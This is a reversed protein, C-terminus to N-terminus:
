LDFINRLFWWLIYLVAYAYAIWRTAFHRRVWQTYDSSPAIYTTALLLLYPILLAGFYNYSFAKLPHGHLLNYIMRQTGCGPCKFGTLALMVCKPAWQTTSPNFRYYFTAMIVVVVVAFVWLGRHHM